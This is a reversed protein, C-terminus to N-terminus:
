PESPCGDTAWVRPGRTSRRRGPPPTPAESRAHNRFPFADASALRRYAALANLDAGMEHVGTLGVDLCDAVASRVAEDM